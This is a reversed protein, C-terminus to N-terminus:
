PLVGADRLVYRAQGPANGLELMRVLIRAMAPAQAALKAVDETMEVPPIRTESYAGGVTQIEHQDEGTPGTGRLYAVWEEEHPKM